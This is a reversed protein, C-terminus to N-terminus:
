SQRKGIHFDSKTSKNGPVNKNPSTLTHSNGMDGDAVPPYPTDDWHNHTLEMTNQELDRNYKCAIYQQNQQNHYDQHEQNAVHVGALDEVSNVTDISIDDSHWYIKYM